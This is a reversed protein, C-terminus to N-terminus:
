SAETLQRIQDASDVQQTACFSLIHPEDLGVNERETINVGLPLVHSEDLRVNKRGTTPQSQTIFHPTRRAVCEGERDYVSVSYFITLSTSGCMCETKM